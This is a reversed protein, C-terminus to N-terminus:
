TLLNLVDGVDLFAKSNQDCRQHDPDPWARGWKGIAMAEPEGLEFSKLTAYSIPVPFPSTAKNNLYPM